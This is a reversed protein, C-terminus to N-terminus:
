YSRCNKYYKPKLLGTDSVSATDAPPSSAATTEAPETTIEAPPTTVSGEAEPAEPAEPSMERDGEGVTEPVAETGSEAGEPAESKLYVCM